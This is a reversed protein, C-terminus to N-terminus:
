RLSRNFGNLMKKVETIETDMVKHSAENLLELDFAMLAYYELRFALSTAIGIFRSFESDASKGCGEAINAPIDVSTKRLSNRPGFVLERPFDQTLKYVLLALEHSRKWVNLNRFNQM